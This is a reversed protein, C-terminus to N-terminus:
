REGTFPNVPGDVFEQLTGCGVAPSDFSPGEEGVVVVEDYFRFSRLPASGLEKFMKVAIEGPIEVFQVVWGTSFTPVVEPVGLQCELLGIEGTQVVGMLVRHLMAQHM